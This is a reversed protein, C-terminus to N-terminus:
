SSRPSTRDELQGLARDSNTAANLLYQGIALWASSKQQLVRARAEDQPKIVEIGIFSASEETSVKDAVSASM